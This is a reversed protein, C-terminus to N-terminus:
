DFRREPGPIATTKKSPPGDGVGDFPSCRVRDHVGSRPIDFWMISCLDGFAIRQQFECKTCPAISIDGFVVMLLYCHRYDFVSCAEASQYRRFATAPHNEPRLKTDQQGLSEPLCRERWAARDERSSHRSPSRKRPLRLPLDRKPVFKGRQETTSKAALLWPLKPRKQGELSM